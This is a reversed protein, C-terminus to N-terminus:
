ELEAAAPLQIMEAPGKTNEALVIVPPKSSRASLTKKLDDENHKKSLQAPDTGVNLALSQQTSDAIM